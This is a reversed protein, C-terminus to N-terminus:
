GERKMRKRLTTNRQELYLIEKREHINSLRVETRAALANNAGGHNRGFRVSRPETALICTPPPSRTM